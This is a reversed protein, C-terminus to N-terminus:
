TRLWGMLFASLLCLPVACTYLDPRLYSLSLSFLPPPCSSYVTWRSAIESDSMTVWDGELRLYYDNVQRVAWTEILSFCVNSKSTSLLGVIWTLIQNLACLLASSFCVPWIVADRKDSDLYCQRQGSHIAGTIGLMNSCATVSFWPSGPQTSLPHISSEVKRVSMMRLTYDLFPKSEVWQFIFEKVSPYQGAKTWKHIDPVCHASQSGQTSSHNIQHVFDLYAKM